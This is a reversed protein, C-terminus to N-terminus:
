SNAFKTFAKGQAHGPIPSTAPGQTNASKALSPALGTLDREPKPSNGTRGRNTEARAKGNLLAEKFM